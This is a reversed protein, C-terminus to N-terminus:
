AASSPIAHRQHETVPGFFRGSARELNGFRELVIV